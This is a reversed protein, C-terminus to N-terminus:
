IRINDVPGSYKLKHGFYQIYCTLSIDKRVTNYIASIKCFSSSVASAEVIEVITEIFILDKYAQSADESINFKKASINHKKAVLKAVKNIIERATKSNSM